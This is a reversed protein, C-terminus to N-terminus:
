AAQAIPPLLKALKTLGKPTVRVQTVTKESGDARLVTTTKHELDSSALRPQYAIYSSGQRSYIWGHEKLYSTLAKPSVQLTKAADTICFSGDSQAIRDFAQIQPRMDEVQGQLELEREASALLLVRLSAASNLLTAPNLPPRGRLEAEMANFQHIYAEKFRAAKSGTFGLVVFAFGDKTMAVHSTSDGTLDNNKFPRFNSRRFADSCDLGRIKELVHKHEKGFFAAVDRSDAMAEGDVINVVPQREANVPIDIAHM